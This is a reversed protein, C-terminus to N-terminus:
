RTAQGVVSTAQWGCGGREHHAIEDPFTSLLSRVLRGTGDPHACAGRGVVLDGLRGVQAASGGGEALQQLQRALEPLGLRCPGCKGASEAALYRVVHDTYRVPCTAPTLPLVVGAGVPASGTEPPTLRTQGVQRGAVWSGHYGGLLIPAGASWRTGVADILPAGGALEVVLPVPSDGDVTLLVTGPSGPHGHAAYTEPGLRALAALQAFTEANSLLTPRGRYGRVSAPEWTTVPLNERGALLQLVASSEGGVFRGSSSYVSWRLPETAERRETIATRVAREVEPRDPNVAIRVHDCGLAQAAVSAGDLVLHPARTMLVADKASAPETETANIVVAARRRSASALKVAFPFGAGGRGYLGVQRCWSVLEPLYADPLPGLRRRHAAWSPSDQAHALLLSGPNIIVQDLGFRRAGGSGQESV